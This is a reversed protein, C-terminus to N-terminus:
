GLASRYVQLTRTVAQEWGFMAQARRQHRQGAARLESISARDLEAIAQSWEQVRGPPLLRVEPGLAERNPPIDSAVVTLGAAMAELLAISFGEVRSPFLFARAHTLLM